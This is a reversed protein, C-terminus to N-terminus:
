QQWHVDVGLKIVRHPKPGQSAAATVTQELQM